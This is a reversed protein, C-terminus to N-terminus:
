RLLFKTTGILENDCFLEATYEGKQLSGDNPWYIAVELREGEYSIVRKASYTLTANEYKFYSKESFAIVKTDPRRLRLYITKEGRQTTINKIIVFEAKLNFCKKWNVERDKKNVPYVNFNETKLASARDIVEKMNKHQSELKQNRERVWSIQKRVETNEKSLKQNLQNLSDIQVVYSRLVTKLTGIERKYRNIEAYSNDRFQKMKDMLLAIKEQEAALKSNLTDNNTKLDDYNQSLEKLDQQLLEKEEHIAQIYEKNEAREVLFFILLAILLVSLCAIIIVLTKDKKDQIFSNADM